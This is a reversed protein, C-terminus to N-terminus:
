NKCNYYHLNETFWNSGLQYTKVEDGIEKAYECISLDDRDSALARICNAAYFNLTDDIDIPPDYFSKFELVNLCTKYDNNKLALSINCFNVRGMTNIAEQNNEPNRNELLPIQRCINPDNYTKAFEQYCDSGYRSFSPSDTIIKTCIELQNNDIGFETYSWRYCNMIARNKNPTAYSPFSIDKIKECATYDEHDIAFLTYCDAASNRGQYFEIDLIKSCRSIDKEDSAARIHCISLLPGLYEYIRQKSHNDLVRNFASLEDKNQNDIKEQLKIAQPCVSFDEYKALYIALCNASDRLSNSYNIDQIAVCACFNDTEKVYEILCEAKKSDEEESCVNIKVNECTESELEFISQNNDTSSVCGLSFLFILGITAFILFKKM